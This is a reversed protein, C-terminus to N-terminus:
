PSPRVSNQFSGTLHLKVIFLKAFLSIQGAYIGQRGQLGIRTARTLHNMGYPVRNSIDERGVFNRDQQPSFM